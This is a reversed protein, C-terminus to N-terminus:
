LSWCGWPLTGGPYRVVCWLAGRRSQYVKVHSARLFMQRAVRTALPQTVEAMGEAGIREWVEALTVPRQTMNGFAQRWALEQEDLPLRLPSGYAPEVRKVDADVAM